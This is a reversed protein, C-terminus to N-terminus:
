TKTILSLITITFNFLSHFIMSSILGQKLRIYGLFIGGFIQPVVFFICLVPIKNIFTYNSLHICGFAVASTYFFLYYYTNVFKAILRETDKFFIYVASVLLVIALFSIIVILSTLNKFYFLSFFIFMLNLFLCVINWFYNRLYSRFLLEEMVPVCISNIILLSFINKSIDKELALNKSIGFFTEVHLLHTIASVLSVLLINLMLLSILTSGNFKLTRKFVYPNKIFSYFYKFENIM